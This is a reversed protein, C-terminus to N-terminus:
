DPNRSTSTACRASPFLSCSTTRRRKQERPSALAISRDANARVATLERGHQVTGAPLADIMGTVLQDNGGVIHFHEDDGPLPELSRLPNGSLLEILDLASQESPDGGNETVTNAMMLRGFRSSAGIPTSDLWEPVSM